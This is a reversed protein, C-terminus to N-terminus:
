PFESDKLFPKLKSIIQVGPWTGNQQKQLQRQKMTCYGTNNATVFLAFSPLLL